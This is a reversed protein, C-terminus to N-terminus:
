ENKGPDDNLSEWVEKCEPCVPFPTAVSITEASTRTPKSNSPSSRMSMWTATPLSALAATARLSPKVSSPVSRCRARPSPPGASSVHDKERNALSYELLGAARTGTFAWSKPPM